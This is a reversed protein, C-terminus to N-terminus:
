ERLRFPRQWWGKRPPGTPEDRAPQSPEPAEVRSNATEAMSSVAPKTELPEDRRAGADVVHKVDSSLSWVPESPTNPAVTPTAIVPIASEDVGEYEGPRAVQVGPEDSADATVLANM